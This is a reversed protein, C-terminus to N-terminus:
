KVIEKLTLVIQGEGIEKKIVFPLPEEQYQEEDYYDEDWIEYSIDKFRTTSSQIKNEHFWINGYIEYEKNKDLILFNELKRYGIIISKFNEADIKPEIIEINVCTTKGFDM